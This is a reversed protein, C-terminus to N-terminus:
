WILRKVKYCNLFLRRKLGEGLITSSSFTQQRAEISKAMKNEAAGTPHLNALNQRYKKYRSAFPQLDICHLMRFYTPTSNWFATYDTNISANNAWWKCQETLAALSAVSDNPEWNHYLSMFHATFVFVPKMKAISRNCNITMSQAADTCYKYKNTLGHM